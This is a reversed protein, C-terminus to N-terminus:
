EAGKSLKKLLQILQKKEEMSLVDFIESINSVHEPFIDTMYQKGKETICILSARGDEPDRKRTVFGEKRLNDIVVTMNGGTSLTGAIIDAIRLDGKHYLIELVAFQAITLGGSRITTLERKRVSQFSRTLAILTKLNLDNHKGYTKKDKM